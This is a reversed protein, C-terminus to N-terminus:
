KREALSLLLNEHQRFLAEATELYEPKFPVLGKMRFLLHLYDNSVLAALDVTKSRLADDPSEVDPFIVNESTGSVTKEFTETM